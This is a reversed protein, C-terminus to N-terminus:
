GTLIHRESEFSYGQPHENAIVDFVQSEPVVYRSNLIKFGARRYLKNNAPEFETYACHKLRSNQQIEHSLILIMLFSTYKVGNLTSLESKILTGKTKSLFNLNLAHAM